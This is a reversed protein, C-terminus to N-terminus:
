MKPTIQDGYQSELDCIQAIHLYYAAKALSSKNLIQYRHWIHCVMLKGPVPCVEKAIEDVRSSYLVCMM